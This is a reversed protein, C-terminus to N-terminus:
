EQSPAHSHALRYEGDEMVAEGAARLNQMAHNFVHLGARHANCHDKLKRLSLGPRNGLVRRIKEEMQAEKTDGLVPEFERRVVLQWSCLRTAKMVIELDVSDKRENAALLSMLRTAYTDLRTTHELGELSLYWQRYYTRAMPELSYVKEGQVDEIIDSLMQRLMIKDREAIPPPIEYKRTSSTPVIFLRNGFGIDTFMGDWCQRYTEITSASLLSLHADEIEIGRGKVRNQYRNSEFLTNVCPLLVSSDIKCKGVFAKFEDLYLLLRKNWRDLVLLEQLGEASGVGECVRFKGPDRAISMAERFFEIAKSSATSKRATGSTGLLLVYLRPDSKIESAIRIEGSLMSGLCALASLYFSHEPPELCEAYIRAFEGCLGSMIGDPFQLIDINPIPKFRQPTLSVIRSRRTM